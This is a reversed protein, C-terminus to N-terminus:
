FACSSLPAILRRRQTPPQYSNRDHETSRRDVDVRMVDHPEDAEVLTEAKALAEASWLVPRRNVHLDDQVPERDADGRDLGRDRIVAQVRVESAPGDLDHEPGVIRLAVVRAQSGLARRREAGRVVEQGVQAERPHGVRVTVRDLQSLLALTDALWSWSQSAVPSGRRSRRRANPDM